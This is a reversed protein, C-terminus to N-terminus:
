LVRGGWDQVDSIEHFRPPRGKFNGVFCWSNVFNCWKCSVFERIPWKSTQNTQTLELSLECRQRLVMRAPKKSRSGHSPALLMPFALYNTADNGHSQQLVSTAGASFQLTRAPGCKMLSLSHAMWWRLLRRDAGKACCGLPCSSNRCKSGNWCLKAITCSQLTACYTAVCPFCLAIPYLAM